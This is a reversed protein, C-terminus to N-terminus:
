IYGLKKSAIVFMSHSWCLPSVSTQLKNNFIQEPIFKQNKLDTLVKNYYKLAKNKNGKELYYITMWFNLLPWYGAGKKRHIKKKYMWGDYEDNEYRYVGYNEVIKEEIIEMTKKMRKDNVNVLESPWVLGLLSADIREDNIKGFSRYFNTKFYELLVRRM